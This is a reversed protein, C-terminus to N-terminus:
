FIIRLHVVKQNKERNGTEKYIDDFRIYSAQNDGSEIHSLIFDTVSTAKMTGKPIATFVFEGLKGIVRGISKM